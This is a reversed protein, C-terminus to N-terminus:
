TRVGLLKKKSRGQGVLLNDNIPAAQVGREVAKDDTIDVVLSDHFFHVHVRIIQLLFFVLLIKAFWYCNM